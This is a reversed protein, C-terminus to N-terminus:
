HALSMIFELCSMQFYKWSDLIQINDSVSFTPRGTLTWQFGLRMWLCGIERSPHILTPCSQVKWNCSLNQITWLNPKTAQSSQSETCLHLWPPCQMDKLDQSSTYGVDRLTSKTQSHEQSRDYLLFLQNELKRETGHLMLSCLFCWSGHTWCMKTFQLYCFNRLFSYFFALFICKFYAAMCTM